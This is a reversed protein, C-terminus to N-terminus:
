NVKLTKQDYFNPNCVIKELSLVVNGVLIEVVRDSNNTSLNFAIENNTEKTQHKNITDIGFFPVYLTVNRNVYVNREYILTPDEFVYGKWDYRETNDVDINGHNNAAIRKLFM